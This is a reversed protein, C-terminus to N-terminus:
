DISRTIIQNTLGFIGILYGFGYSIHMCPFVLFSYAIKVITPQILISIILLISLYLFIPILFFIDKFGYYIMIPLCLTFIVPINHRLRMGSPVKKFVLPKYLGYNFFQSWLSSLTERVFYETQLAPDM